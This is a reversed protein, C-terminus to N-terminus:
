VDKKNFDNQSRKEMFQWIKNGFLQGVIKKKRIFEVIKKDEKSRYPKWLKSKHRNNRRRRLDYQKRRLEDSLIDYAESIKKFKNTAEQKDNLHKDPHWVRALKRYAKRIEITTATSPIELVSYYDM